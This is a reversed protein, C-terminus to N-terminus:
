ETIQTLSKLCEQHKTQIFILYDRKQGIEFLHSNYIDIGDQIYQFSINNVDEPKNNIRAPRNSSDEYIIDNLSNIISISTNALGWARHRLDAITM